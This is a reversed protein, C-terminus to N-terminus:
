REARATEASPTKVQGSRHRLDQAAIREANSQVGPIQRLQRQALIADIAEKETKGRKLLSQGFAFEEATLKPIKEAMVTVAKAADGGRNKLVVALADEPAKGRRILEMANSVEAPRPTEGAKAFAERAAKLSDNPNFAAPKAAVEAAQAVPKAAVAQSATPATGRQSLIIETADKASKGQAKLDMWPGMEEVTLVPKPTGWGKPIASPAAEVAAPAVEEAVAAAGRRELIDAGTNLVAKTGEKWPSGIVEAARRMTAPSPMARSALNSIGRGIAKAGSVLSPVTLLDEPAIGFGGVTAVNRDPSEDVNGKFGPGQMFKVSGDANRVIRNGHADTEDPSGPPLATNPSAASMKPAAKSQEGIAMLVDAENPQQDAELTVVRGDSLTVRYKPM